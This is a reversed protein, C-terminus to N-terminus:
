DYYAFSAFSVASRTEIENWQHYHLFKGSNPKSASLMAYFPGLGCIKNKDNISAVSRYFENHNCEALSDILLQDDKKLRNLEPAADFPDEFKKGIHALDGSALFVVKRHDEEIIENISNIVKSYIKDKEPNETGRFFANLSGTLIPLVKFKRGAFVHQLLLIQFEISHEYRHTIDDFTILGPQKLLLKDLFEQDTEAVGLPTVFNKRTFMFNDTNGYHATGFVVFLDADSERIAEYGKAYCSHAGEGIRFDIHPLAIAKANGPISEGNTASLIEDLEVKLEEADSSFSNGACVSPRVDSDIYEDLGEKVEKFRPTELYCNQDLFHVLEIISEMQAPKGSKTMFSSNLDDFTHEENLYQILPMLDLPFALPQMAYGEPDILVFFKEKDQEVIEFKLNERLRPLTM